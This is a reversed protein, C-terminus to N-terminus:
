RRQQAYTRQISQARAAGLVGGQGPRQGLSVDFVRELANGMMAASKMQM